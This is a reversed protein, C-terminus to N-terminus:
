KRKQPLQTPLSEPDRQGGFKDYGEPADTIFEPHKKQLQMLEEFQDDTLKQGVPYKDEFAEMDQSFSRYLQDRGYQEAMLKEIDDIEGPSAAKDMSDNWAVLQGSRGQDPIADMSQGNGRDIGQFGFGGDAYYVKIVNPTNPVAETRVVKSTRSSARPRNEM